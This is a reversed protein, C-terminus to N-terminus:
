GRDKNMQKITDMYYGNIRAGGEKALINSQASTPIQKDGTLFKHMKDCLQKSKNTLSYLAKERGKKPRWLVMYGEKLFMNFTKGQYIGILKHFNYFDNKSFVGKPYLYLILELHARKLGTNETAWKFVPRIYQLFDYERTTTHRPKPKKNKTTNRIYIPKGKVTHQDIYFRVTERSFGIKAGIARLSLGKKRYQLIEQIQDDTIQRKFGKNKKENM